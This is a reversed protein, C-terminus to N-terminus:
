KRASNGDTRWERILTNLKGPPGPEIAELCDAAFAEFDSYPAKEDTNATVERGLSKHWFDALQGIFHFIAHDRKRGRKGKPLAAEVGALLVELYGLQTRVLWLGPSVYGDSIANEPSIPVVASAAGLKSPTKLPDISLELSQRQMLDDVHAAIADDGEFLLHQLSTTANRIRTIRRRTEAITVKSEGIARLREFNRSASGFRQWFADIASLQHIDHKEAIKLAQLKTANKGYFEKALPENKNLWRQVEISRLPKQNM